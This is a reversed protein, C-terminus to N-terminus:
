EGKNNKCFMPRPIRPHEGVHYLTEKYLKCIHYEGPKQNAEKPTLFHCNDCYELGNVTEM